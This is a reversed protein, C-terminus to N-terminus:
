TKSSKNFYEKATKVDDEIQKKLLKFSDFRKDDRLKKLFEVKIYKGYLDGVDDFVHAELLTHTGGVTPKSGIYAVSPCPSAEAGDEDVTVTAVFIGHIATKMRRLEINATPFGLTRGLQDGHMVRGSINYNWGLLRAALALDDAQLAERIRSSSVRDGDILFTESREIQFDHQRSLNLLLEYDGARGKGFRFDDGILLHKVAMKDLLLDLVFAEASLSALRDDFRLCVMRDVGYERLLQYKERWRTLRAPAKVPDFFELPQPEFVLVSMPLDTLDAIRRLQSLVARHGLHFGDFNGITAVCPQKRAQLDNLNRILEM